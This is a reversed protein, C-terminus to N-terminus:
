KYLQKKVIIINNKNIYYNNFFMLYGVIIDFALAWFAYNKTSEFNLLITAIM